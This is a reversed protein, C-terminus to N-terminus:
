LHRKLRVVSQRHNHTRCVDQAEVIFRVHTMKQWHSQEAAVDNIAMRHVFRKDSRHLHRCHRKRSACPTLHLKAHCLRLGNVSGHLLIHSVQSCGDRRIRQRTQFMRIKYSQLRYKRKPHPYGVHTMQIIDVRLRQIRKLRGVSLCRIDPVYM